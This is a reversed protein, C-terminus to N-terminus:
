KPRDLDSSGEEFLEIVSSRMLTVITVIGLVTGLPVSITNIAAVIICYARHTQHRLRKGAVITAAAWFGVLLFGAVSAAIFDWGAGVPLGLPSEGASVAPSWLIKIGIWGFMLMYLSGLAVLGGYVYHLVALIRLQRVDTTTM